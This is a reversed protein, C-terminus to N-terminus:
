NTKKGAERFSRFAWNRNWLLFRGVLPLHSMYMSDAAASFSKAKAAALFCAIQVHNM